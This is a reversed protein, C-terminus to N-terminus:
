EQAREQEREKLCGTLWRQLEIRMSMGAKEKEDTLEPTMRDAITSSMDSPLDNTSTFGENTMFVFPVAILFSRSREGFVLLFKCDGRVFFSQPSGNPDEHTENAMQFYLFNTWSSHSSLEHIAELTEEIPWFFTCAALLRVLTVRVRERWVQAPSFFFFVGRGAKQQSEYPRLVIYLLLKYVLSSSSSALRSLLLSAFTAIALFSCLSLSLFFVACRDAFHCKTEKASKDIDIINVRDLLM